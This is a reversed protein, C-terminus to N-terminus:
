EPDRKTTEKDTLFTRLLLLYLIGVLALLSYTIATFTTADM